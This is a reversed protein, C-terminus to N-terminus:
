LALNIANELQTGANHGAQIFGFGHKISDQYAQWSLALMVMRGQVKTHFHTLNHQWINHHVKMPHSCFSVWMQSDLCGSPCKYIMICHSIYIIEGMCSNCTKATKQSIHQDHFPTNWNLISPLIVYGYKYLKLRPLILLAKYYRDPKPM